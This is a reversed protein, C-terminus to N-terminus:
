SNSQPAKSQGAAVVILNNNQFPNNALNKSGPVGSEKQKIKTNSQKAPQELEFITGKKINKPSETQIIVPVSQDNLNDEEDLNNHTM